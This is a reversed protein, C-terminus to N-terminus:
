GIRYEKVKTLLSRYSIGLIRAAKSKNGKTREIVEKIAKAETDRTVSAVLDKLSLSDKVVSGVASEPTGYNLLLEIHEPRIMDDKSFLAGRRIVNKLERVNGPWRYGTLVDLAEDSIGLIKKNLEEAAEVLFKQAFLPIDETRERLPPVTIIFESLRFFLDERFKKEKVAQMIDVNSAGIIRADVEVPVTGGVTYLRKEEAIRLLKSQIAPSMNQLEDIFITGRNAVEFFGKRKQVAGTYAGKEYGFLESEVLTEPIAGMDVVVFANDARNSFNHITRAIFSKGTGTEGQLIVSFNSTAIQRVQEIVRKMSQSKGFLWELSTKVEANLRKVNEELQVKEIARKLIVILRNFDPPKLIFDYAGLKIAEVATPVDGHGTVIIVPVDSDIKKLEKLCEIGGMGPMKLDLLVADPRDKRFVEIGAEGNPAEITIFGSRGLVLCLSARVEKEDEIILIRSM